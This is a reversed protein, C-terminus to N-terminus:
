TIGLIGLTPKTAGIRFIWSPGCCVPNDAAVEAWLAGGGCVAAPVGGFFLPGGAASASRRLLTAPTPVVADVGMSVVERPVVTDVGM